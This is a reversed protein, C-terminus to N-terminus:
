DYGSPLHNRKVEALGGPDPLVSKLLVSAVLEVSPVTRIPM